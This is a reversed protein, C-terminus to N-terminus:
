FIQSSQPVAAVDSTRTLTHTVQQLWRQARPPRSSACIHYEGFKPKRLHRRLVAINEGVPRLFCVAQALCLLMASSADTVCGCPRRRTDRIGFCTQAENIHVKIHLMPEGAPVDLREM